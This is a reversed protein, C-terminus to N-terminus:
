RRYIMESADIVDQFVTEKKTVTDLVRIDKPGPKVEFNSYVLVCDRPQRCIKQMGADSVFKDFTDVLEKTVKKGQNVIMYNYMEVFKGQQVKNKYGSHNSSIYTTIDLPIKDPNHQCGILFMIPIMILYKMRYYDGYILIEKHSM